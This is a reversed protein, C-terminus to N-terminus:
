LLFSITRIADGNNVLLVKKSVLRFGRNTDRLRYLTRGAWIRYDHRYEHIVFNAAVEIEPGSAALIEVNDVLRRMRSPPVQSHRRGSNLQAIRSHIRSRNDYVFSVDRAPDADDKRPVWYVADDEWLDEWETYRSEDCLRAERYLFQRVAELQTVADPGTM